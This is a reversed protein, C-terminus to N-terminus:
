EGQCWCVAGDAVDGGHWGGLVGAFVDDGVEMAQEWQAVSWAREGDARLASRYDEAGVLGYLLLLGVLLLAGRLRGM